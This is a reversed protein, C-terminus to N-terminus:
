ARTWGRCAMEAAQSPVTRWRALTELMNAVCYIQHAKDGVTTAFLGM